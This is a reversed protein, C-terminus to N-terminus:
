QLPQLNAKTTWGEKGACSGEIPKVRVYLNPIGLAGSIETVTAKTGKSVLCVNRSEDESNDVSSLLGPQTVLLTDGVNPNNIAYTQGIVVNVNVATGKTSGSALAFYAIVASLSGLVVYFVYPNKRRLADVQAIAAPLQLKKETSM